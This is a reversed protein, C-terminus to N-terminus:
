VSYFRAVAEQLERLSTMQLFFLYISIGACLGIMLWMFLKCRLQLRKIITGELRPRLYELAENLGRSEILDELDYQMSEDLLGVKFVDKTQMGRQLLNELMRKIVDAKWPSAGYKLNELSEKLNDSKSNRTKIVLSLNSIFKVAEFDRHISWVLGYKDLAWRVPGRLRPLSFVIGILAMVTLGGLLWVNGTLFDALSLMTQASSPLYEAPLDDSIEKLKPASFLPVSALSLLTVVFPFIFGLVAITVVNLAKKILATTESMDRLGEPLIADGGKMQILRLLMVEDDPLTGEFVKGFKGGYNDFMQAWHNSLVGRPRRGYRIADHQFIQRLKKKGQTAEIIDALYRYYDSRKSRFSYGALRVNFGLASSHRASLFRRWRDQLDYILRRM